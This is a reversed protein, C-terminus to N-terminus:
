EKRQKSLKAIREVFDKEFRSRINFLNVRDGRMYGLDELSQVMNIFKQQKQDWDGINEELVYVIIKDSNDQYAANFEHEWISKGEAEDGYRPGLVAIFFHCRKSLRKCEQLSDPSNLSESRIPTFNKEKIVDEVADRYPKLDKDKTSSIFVLPRIISESSIEGITNWQRDYGVINTVNIHEKYIGNKQRILEDLIPHILYHTSDPLLRVEDFTKEGVTAFMQVYKDKVTSAPTIYGLLGIKYLECFIHTKDTCEKCDKELCEANNGNFKMCIKKLERKELINSQILGFVKDIHKRNVTLHPLVENLYANAIKTATENILQKIKEIGRQEVPNRETVLCRSIAGGVEMFDRPRRLTHRYIYDFMDEEEENVWGHRIKDVGLFACIPNKKLSAKDQLNRSNERNINKIFIERLEGKYYSIDLSVSEYQLFMETRQKLKLFAEKRISAFLKFKPNLRVLRYIAAILSNQAIYWINRDAEFCEDVNDIFIAVSKSVTRATPILTVNYDGTLDQFFQKRAISTLIGGLHDSATMLRKLTLLYRLSESIDEKLIEDTMELRKIIAVIISISWLQEMTKEKYLLSLVDQNLVDIMMEPIDLLTGHPIICEIGSIRKRKALLLLSKGLGKTAIVFYYRDQSLFVEIDNTKEILDNSVDSIDRIAERADVTWPNM